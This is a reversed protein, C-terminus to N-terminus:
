GLRKGGLFLMLNFAIHVAVPKLITQCGVALWGLLIGFSLQIVFNLILVHKKESAGRLHITGFLIALLVIFIWALYSLRSFVLFLPARFVLEELISGCILMFASKKVLEELPVGKNEPRKRRLMAVLIMSLFSVILLGVTIMIEILKGKM